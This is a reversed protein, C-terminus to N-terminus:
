DIRTNTAVAIGEIWTKGEDYSRDARWLFSDKEIDFFRVRQRFARGNPDKGEFTALMEGKEDFAGDMIWIRDAAQGIPLYVMVWRGNKRDIYRWGPGGSGPLGVQQWTDNIAFGNWAFGATWTGEIVPGYTKKELDNMWRVENKWSGIFFGFRIMEIPARPNMGEPLGEAALALRSQWWTDALDRQADPDGKQWAALADFAPSRNFLYLKDDIIAFATPDVPYRAPAWGRQTVRIACGYACWGGYQPLFTEPNKQFQRRHEENAFRYTLGGHTATITELGLQAADETFYAVVDYGNLAVGESTANRYWHDATALTPAPANAFLFFILINM